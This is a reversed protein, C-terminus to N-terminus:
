HRFDFDGLGLLVKPLIMGELITRKEMKDRILKLMVVVILAPILEKIM